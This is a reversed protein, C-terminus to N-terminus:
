LRDCLSPNRIRGQCIVNGFVVAHVRCYCIWSTRLLFAGNAGVIAGGAAATRFGFEDRVNTRDGFLRIVRWGEPHFQDHFASKQVCHVRRQKQMLFRFFQGGDEGCGASGRFSLCDVIWLGDCDLNLWTRAIWLRVIWFDLNSSVSVLRRMSVARSMRTPLTGSGFLWTSCIVM